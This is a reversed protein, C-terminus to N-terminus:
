DARGKHNLSPLNEHVTRFAIQPEGIQATTAVSGSQRNWSDLFAQADENSDCAVITCGAQKGAANQVGVYRVVSEESCDPCHVIRGGARRKEDSADDFEDGCEACERLM